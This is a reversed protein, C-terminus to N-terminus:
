TLNLRHRRNGRRQRAAVDVYGSDPQSVEHVLEILKQPIEEIKLVYDVDAAKIANLPMLDFAAEDPDQVIAVGGRSKVFHLGQAGDDLMGTLVIGIVRPGYARAASRFLPDIAPRHRKERPGRTLRVCRPEVLLHQDPPAVYVRAPEIKQGDVATSIKMRGRTQLIEPLLSPRSPSLHMVIFIAAPFDAPLAGVLNRLPKVGGASAGIVIIDPM